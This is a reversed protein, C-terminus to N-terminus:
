FLLGWTFGFRVKRSSEIAAQDIKLGADGVDASTSAALASAEAEEALKAQKEFVQYIELNNLLIISSVGAHSPGIGHASQLSLKMAFRNSQSAKHRRVIQNVPKAGDSTMSVCDLIAMRPCSQTVLVFLGLLTRDFFIM